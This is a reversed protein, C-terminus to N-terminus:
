QNGTACTWPFRPDLDRIEQPVCACEEDDDGRMADRICAFAQAGEHDLSCAAAFGVVYSVLVSDALGARCSHKADTFHFGERDGEVLHTMEHAVTNLLERRGARFRSRAIMIRPPDVRTTALSGFRDDPIVLVDGFDYGQLLATVQTASEIAGEAPLEVSALLDVNSPFVTALTGNEFFRCAQEAAFRLDDVHRRPVVGRPRLSICHAGTGYRVVIAAPETTPPMRLITCGCMTIAAFLSMGRLTAKVAISLRRAKRMEYTM